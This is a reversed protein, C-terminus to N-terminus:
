ASIARKQKRTLKARKDYRKRRQKLLPDSPDLRLAPLGDRGYQNCETCIWSSGRQIAGEHQCRARDAGPEVPAYGPTGLLPVSYPDRNKIDEALARAERIARLVTVHPVGTMMSIQRLSVGSDHLGKFYQAQLQRPTMPEPRELSPRDEITDADLGIDTLTTSFRM